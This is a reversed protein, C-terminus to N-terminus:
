LSREEVLTEVTSCFIELLKNYDDYQEREDLMAFFKSLSGNLLDDSIQEELINTANDSM